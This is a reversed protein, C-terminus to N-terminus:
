RYIYNVLELFQANLEEDGAFRKEVNQMMKVLLIAEERLTPAKLAV